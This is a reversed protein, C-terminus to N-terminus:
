VSTEGDLHSGDLEQVQVHQLMRVPAAHWHMHAELACCVGVFGPCGDHGGDEVVCFARWLM